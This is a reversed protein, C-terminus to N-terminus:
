SGRGPAPARFPGATPDTHAPRRSLVTAATATSATAAAPEHLRAASGKLRATASPRVTVSMPVTFASGRATGPGPRVVTTVSSATVVTSLRAEQRLARTRPPWSHNSMGMPAVTRTRATGPGPSGPSAVAATTPEPAATRSTAGGAPARATTPESRAPSASATCCGCATGPRHRQGAPADSSTEPTASPSSWARGASTRVSMRVTDIVWRVATDPSCTAMTRPRTMLPRPTSGLRHRARTPAKTSAASTTRTRGPPETRRAAAMPPTRSM